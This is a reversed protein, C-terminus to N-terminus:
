EPPSMHRRSRMSIRRARDLFRELLALAGEIDRDDRAQTRVANEIEERLIQWERDLADASWGLEARQRGHLEAIVRQIESGDQLLRDQPVQSDELIVLAQGIDALFSSAHDELDVKALEPARPILPDRRLRAAFRDIIPELQDQVAQGVAGLNPPATSRAEEVVVQDLREEECPLWLTFTSGQGPESEVTLDGGMLRALHRSITLGLGTGGRARTTGADVQTFPKFISEIKRPSIGIGTDAVQIRTLRGDTYTDLDALREDTTDCTIRIEGGPETFKIANSLLNVLIQRVRNPDGVYTTARDGSCEDVVTLNRQAAQPEVLARAAAIADAALTREVEIEMRGAEVKAVDLVDEILTLLHRSSQRVRDLHSAQKDTLPGATGAELLDTYGMIANIPTRIEHSMNALFQSKARSADEAEARARQAERRSQVHDTVDSGHAVVGTRTGDAETIPYYVFDLFREEPEGEPDRSILVPSERGVYPTGTRLVNDLLEEFGQGRIEPLAEAVPRGLLARHGVLQYYAANVYEFVHEPGRLVAMFAPAHTFVDHLRKEAQEARARAAASEREAMIRSTSESVINLVAVIEGGEDRVPSLSFTFWAHQGAQAGNGSGTGARRVVFPEDEAFVPPGGERVREFLPGIEPWIEAWVESGPRGLAGPHKDGLVVRYADNYILTLEPGCWLNIPSASDLTTRVAVRLTTSWSEVPGLPTASWDIARCLARLEGEGAFLDDAGETM